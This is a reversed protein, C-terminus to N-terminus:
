DDRNQRWIGYYHLVNLWKLGFDHLANKYSRVICLDKFDKRELEGTAKKIEQTAAWKM